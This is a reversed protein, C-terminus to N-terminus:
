PIIRPAPDRPQAADPPRQYVPAPRPIPGGAAVRRAAIRAVASVLAAPDPPPVRGPLAAAAGPAAADFTRAPHRASPASPQATFPLPRGEALAEFAPVGVAPIGLGLALGRAAAVGVRLGTFNGPGTGIGIATLDGWSAGATALIEELMPLLREAQGRDM